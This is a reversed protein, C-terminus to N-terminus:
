HEQLVRPMSQTMQAGLGGGAVWWKPYAQHLVQTAARCAEVDAFLGFCTAGSGSMRALGCGEMDRLASLVQAIVPAVAIAPAELDNRQDALWDILAAADAFSPMDPTMGPNERRELAGFVAGTPVPVRPNVLVAYLPPLDVYELKEGIGRARLPRPLMCMPVDAGLALIDQAHATMEDDSAEAMQALDADDRAALVGRLAAAADASGGGIGAASPLNKELSMAFGQGGAVLRAARLALNDATDPVGAAEPGSVHLSLDRSPRITLRDHVSAFAVLSDLMHYGDARQGTIHLTLNIKAPACVEVTAM